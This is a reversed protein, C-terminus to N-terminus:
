GDRLANGRPAGQVRPLTTGLPEHIPTAPAAVLALSGIM